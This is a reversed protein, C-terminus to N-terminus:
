NPLETEGYDPTEIAVWLQDTVGSSYFRVSGDGMCVQIGATTFGQSKQPHVSSPSPGFEPRRMCRCRWPQTFPWQTVAAPGGRNVFGNRPHYPSNYLSGSVVGNIWQDEGPYQGTALVPTFDNPISRPSDRICM